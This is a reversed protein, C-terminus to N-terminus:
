LAAHSTPRFLPAGSLVSAGAPRTRTRLRPASRKVDRRGGSGRAPPPAAPAGARRRARGGRDGRLAVVRIRPHRCADGARGRRVGLRRRRRAAGLARRRPRQLRRVEVRSLARCGLLVPGAIRFGYMFRLARHVARALARAAADLAHAKESRAPSARSCGRGRAAASSSTSSTAPSAPWLGRAAAVAGFDLYGRHAAFGALAIVTEGELFAGVIVALYGYQAVLGPIDM